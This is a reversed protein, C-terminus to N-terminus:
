KVLEESLKWLKEQVDKDASYGPPKLEKFDSDFFKGNVDLFKNSTMLQAIAHGAKEPKKSILKFLFRLAAPMERTLDSKVLGPHFVMAATGIGNMKRALAYTYLLNGMKSAGFASLASFKKEGQLDDFNLKTTSPASVTLIRAGPSANILPLLENTLVFVSLHNVAFMSELKDKTLERKAKYTAAINVLGDLKTLRSKIEAAAKKISSLDAFDVILGEINKNGSATKIENIVNDLKSKNRALLILQHEGKALELAAAKGVAGTVGTIVYTKM